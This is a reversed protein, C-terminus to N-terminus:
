HEITAHPLNKESKSCSAQPHWVKDSAQTIDLFASEEREDSADRKGWM